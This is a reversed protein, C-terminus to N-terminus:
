GVPFSCTLALWTNKPISEDSAGAGYNSVNVRGSTYIRLYYTYRGISKGVLYMNKSPRYGEPLTFIAVASGGAAIAESTNVAGTIFVTKGLKRYAAPQGADSTFPSVITPTQWGSDVTMDEVAEFADMSPVEAKNLSEDFGYISM